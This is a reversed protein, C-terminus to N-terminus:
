TRKTGPKNATSHRSDTLTCNTAENRCARRQTSENTIAKGFSPWACWMVVVVLLVGPEKSDWLVRVDGAMVIVLKLCGNKCVYM